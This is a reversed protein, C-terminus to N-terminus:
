LTQFVLCPKSSPRYDMSVFRWVSVLGLAQMQRAPLFKCTVAADSFNRPLDRVLMTVTSLGWADMCGAESRLVRGALLLSGWGGPTPATGSQAEGWAGNSGQLPWIALILFYTYSLHQASWQVTARGVQQAATHSPNLALLLCALASAWGM